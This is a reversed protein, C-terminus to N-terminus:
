VHHCVRELDHPYRRPTKDRVRKGQGRNIRGSVNLNRRSHAETPRYM